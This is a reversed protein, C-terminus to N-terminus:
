YFYVFNLFPFGIPAVNSIWEFMHPYLLGFDATLNTGCFRAGIFLNPIHHYENDWKILLHWYEALFKIKGVGNKIGVYACFLNGGMPTLIANGAGGGFTIQTGPKEQTMGVYAAGWFTNEVEQMFPMAIFHAGCSVYQGKGSDYVKVKPGFYYLWNDPTTPILTFGFDIMFNNTLGYATWVFFLEYDAFYREGKRLTNGTPMIFLRSKNPDARFGKLKVTIGTSEAVKKLKNQINVLETDPLFVISIDDTKSKILLYYLTDEKLIIAEELDKVDFLEFHKNETEDITKGVYPSLEIAKLRSVPSYMFVKGTDRKVYEMRPINWKEEFARKNEDSKSIEEYRDLYDRLIEIERESQQFRTKEEMGDKEYRIEAVYTSDPLQLLVASKFGKIDQFFEFHEREIVDIVEGVKDSLIIVKEENEALATGGGCVGIQISLLVLAQFKLIKGM